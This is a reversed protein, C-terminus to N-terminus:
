DPLESFPDLCAVGLPTFHRTNRSLVTLNHVRATAAILSDAVGPDHGTWQARGSLKGALTAIPHDIGLIRDAFLIDIESLWARFAASRRTPGNSELRTIGREIELLIVVSLCLPGTLANQALWSALAISSERRNPAFASLVNTDLLYGETM